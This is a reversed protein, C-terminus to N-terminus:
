DIMLRGTSFLSALHMWPDGGIQTLWADVLHRGLVYAVVRTRQRETFTVLAEPDMVAADNALAELTAERSARSDLYPALIEPIAGELAFVETEVAVLTEARDSPLRARPLLVDRYVRAREDRPFTLDAGVEAAGEAMLLHPGFAPQLLLEPRSRTTAVADVLLHQVHHGPYAEHCALRLGRSVDLPSRGSIEVISRHRGQYRAFGDWASDVGVRLEVSEDSPLEIQARTRARCEDLAARLVDAERGQPITVSRRFTAHREGLSGSGPLLRALTERAVQLRGVDIQPLAVGYAAVIEDAFALREGLLRRAAFDLADLQRRLYGARARDDSSPTGRDLATLGSLLSAIDGRTEAVPVRPGPRWAEDGRWDEVLSPQHQALALAARVYGRAIDDLTRTSPAGCGITLLLMCAVCGNSTWRDM